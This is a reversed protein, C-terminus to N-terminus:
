PAGRARYPPQCRRAPPWSGWSPTVRSRTLRARAARLRFGIGFLSAAQERGWRYMSRTKFRPAGPPLRWAGLLPEGDLGMEGAIIPKSLAAAQAIRVDIGNWQDGGMATGSYYDHYSLVDVGPSASVYQYDASETGCQGGGLLGNEVLHNPDLAHIEGGVVDFFHRLARAAVAENPCSTHGWCTGPYYSGDCTSAEAESIPEWMGLAPSNKYRNVVDQMYDWYSLPTHGSGDSNSPSNFVNMFGGDFWPPDQWHDGDCVGGQDTLSVILRQGHAAAAGFVRDLSAWDLQDTHINTAIAGQFAWIRVLSNAPLSSFLENLQANSEQSGCGPNVGVETGIEYANVGVFTYPRGNLELHGGSSGIEGTAATPDTTTSTAPTVARTSGSTSSVQGTAPSGYNKADGFPQVAGNATLVWYGGSPTAALATAPATAGIVSGYTGADGFAYVTGDQSVLWYGNNDPTPAMYVIPSRPPNAGMSGEFPADGFAFVGGDSAVMWYGDGDHTPAMGVVPKNLHHAGMSGEFPADGFAFVGGDSAVMWYGGGDHTPAMGVVPKNLHIGGTSGFFGADGFSFVGGDAADLWYGRGDPTPTMGVISQNLAKNSLDGYSVADGFSEVTGGNSAVWYGDGDPTAAIGSWTQQVDAVLNAHLPVMTHDTSPSAATQGNFSTPVLGWGIGVAVISALLLNLM